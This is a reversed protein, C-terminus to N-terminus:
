NCLKAHFGINHVFQNYDCCNSAGSDAVRSFVLSDPCAIPRCAVHNGFQATFPNNHTVIVTCVGNRNIVKYIYKPIPNKSNKMLYIKTPQGTISHELELVEFTGTLVSVYEGNKPLGHVWNEIIKWNKINVSTFQPIVNIYNMTADKQDYTLLDQVNVLHGRDIVRNSPSNSTIFRQGNGLLSVFSAYVNAAEFSEARTPGTVSGVAFTPRNYAYSSLSLGYTKHRSYIAEESLKSYCVQYISLTTGSRALTYRIDYIEGRNRQFCPVENIVQIEQYKIGNMCKSGDPIRDMIGRNCKLQIIDDEKCILYLTQGDELTNTHLLDYQNSPTKIAYIWKRNMNSADLQCQQGWVDKAVLWMIIAFQIIM